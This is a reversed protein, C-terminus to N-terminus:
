GYRRALKGNAAVPVNPVFNILAPVKYRPLSARCLGLIELSIEIERARAAKVEQKLVV